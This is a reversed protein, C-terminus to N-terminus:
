KPDSPGRASRVIEQPLDMVEQRAEVRSRLRLMEMRLIRLQEDALYSTSNWKEELATLQARDTDQFAECKRLFSDWEESGTLKEMPVAATRLKALGEAIIRHRDREINRIGLLRQYEERHMPM